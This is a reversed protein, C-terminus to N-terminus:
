FEEPNRDRISVCDNAGVVIHDAVPIGIIKGAAVLRKTLELDEPSPAADGSPHNHGVIVSSANSLVAGKFVERPNVAVSTVSGVAIEEVGYIQQQPGLHLAVFSERDKNALFKLARCAAKSDSVSEEQLRGRKSRKLCVQIARGPKAACVTPEAARDARRVICHLDSRKM